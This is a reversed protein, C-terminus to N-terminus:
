EKHTVELELVDPLTQPATQGVAQLASFTVPEEPQAKIALTGGKAIFDALANVYGSIRPNLQGMQAGSLRIIAPASQRLDSASGGMQLAAIAFIADLLKEDAVTLSFGKFSGLASIAEVDGTQAKAIDDLKFGGFDATMALDVLGQTNAVYDLGAVGNDSNWLWEVFGDGKVSDLGSEKLVNLMEEEAEPIYATFDYIAGKTDARFKSPALWTFEMASVSAEKIFAARKESGPKEGEPKEGIFVSMDTMTMVGLDVLDKATVPPMEEKLGYEMLGSFDINRWEFADITARQHAPAIFNQFPGDLLFGAQPGMTQRLAAITQESQSLTYELENAIFASLKGGGVGVLRLDPAMFTFLPAADDSVTLNIDKFYLGALNLANFLHAANADDALGSQRVALADIEVGGVTMVSEDEGGGQSAVEFLRVKQFVTEFPADNDSTADQADNDSTKQIREIAELDVGYFEARGIMLGEDDGASSFFLKTVIMAGLSNDFSAGEYTPRKDAPLLALLQDIDIEEANKLRFPADLPSKSSAKAAQVSADTKPADKADDNGGCAALALAAASAFLIKTFKM